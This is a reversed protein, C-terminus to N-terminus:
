LTALSPQGASEKSCCRSAAMPAASVM